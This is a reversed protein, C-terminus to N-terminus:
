ELSYSNDQSKNWRSYSVSPSWLTDTSILTPPRKRSAHLVTTLDTIVLSYVMMQKMNDNHLVPWKPAMSIGTRIM